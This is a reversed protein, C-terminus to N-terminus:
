EGKLLNGIVNDYKNKWEPDSTLQYVTTLSGMGGGLVAIRKVAM